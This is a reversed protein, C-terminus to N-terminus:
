FGPGIIAVILLYGALETYWGDESHQGQRIEVGGQLCACGGVRPGKRNKRYSGLFAQRCCSSVAMAARVNETLFGEDFRKNFIM